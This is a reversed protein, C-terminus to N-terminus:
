LYSSGHGVDLNLIRFFCHLLILFSGKAVDWTSVGEPQTSAVSFDMKGYCFHAQSEHEETGFSDLVLCSARYEWCSGYVREEPSSVPRIKNGSSLLSQQSLWGVKRLTQPCVDTRQCLAARVVPGYGCDWSMITELQVKSIKQWSGPCNLVRSCHLIQPSEPLSALGSTWCGQVTNQRWGM